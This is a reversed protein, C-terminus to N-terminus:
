TAEGKAHDPAPTLAQMMEYEAKSIIVSLGVGGRLYSSLEPCWCRTTDSPDQQYVNAGDLIATLATRLRQCEATMASHQVIGEAVMSWAHGNDEKVKALEDRYERMTKANDSDAFTAVQMTRLHDREKEAAALKARADDLMDQLKGIAETQAAICVREGREAPHSLAAKSDNLLERELDKQAQTMHGPYPTTM